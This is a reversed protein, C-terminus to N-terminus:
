RVNLLNSVARIDESTLVGADRRLALTYRIHDYRATQLEREASFRDRLANLVDVSTM